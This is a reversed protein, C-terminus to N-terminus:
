LEKRYSDFILLLGNIFLIPVIINSLVKLMELTESIGICGELIEPKFLYGMGLIVTGFIIKLTKSRESETNKFFIFLILFLSFTTCFFIFILIINSINTFGLILTIILPIIGAYYHREYTIRNMVKELHII